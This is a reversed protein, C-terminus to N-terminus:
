SSFNSGSGPQGILRQWEHFDAGNTTLDRSQCSVRACSPGTDDSLADTGCYLEESVGEEPTDADATDGAFPYM